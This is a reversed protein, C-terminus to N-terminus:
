VTAKAGVVSWGEFSSGPDIGLALPQNNPIVTKKLIICFIGLKNWYASAQGGTLLLRARSSTTPMLPHMEADLVPVRMNHSRVREPYRKGEVKCSSSLGGKLPLVGSMIHGSTPLALSASLDTRTTRKASSM